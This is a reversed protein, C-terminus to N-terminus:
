KRRRERFHLRPEGIWAFVKFTAFVVAILYIVKFEGEPMKSAINILKFVFTIGIVSFIIWGINTFLTQKPDLEYEAEERISGIVKRRGMM